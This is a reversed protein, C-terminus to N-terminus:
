LCTINHCTVQISIMSIYTSKGIVERMISKYNIIRRSRMLMSKSVSTKEAM